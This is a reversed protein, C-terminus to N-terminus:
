AIWEVRESTESALLEEIEVGERLMRALTTAQKVGMEQGIKELSGNIWGRTSADLPVAQPSIQASVYLAWLLGVGAIAMNSQLLHPVSACVADILHTVTSRAQSIREELEAYEAVHHAYHDRLHILQVILAENVLIHTTSCNNAVGATWIDDYIYDHQSLM